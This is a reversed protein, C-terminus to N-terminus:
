RPPDQELKHLIAPIQADPYRRRFEALSARAEDLRGAHALEAIRQLWAERAAPSDMTAPPLDDELGERESLPRAASGGTARNLQAPPLATSAPPAPAASRAPTAPAPTPASLAKQAPAVIPAPEAPLARQRTMGDLARHESRPAEIAETEGPFASVTAPTAPRPSPAVVPAPAPPSPAYEPAPPPPPAIAADGPSPAPATRTAEMAAPPQSAPAAPVTAPAPRLVASSDQVPATMPSVTPAPRSVGEAAPARAVPRAAEMQAHRTPAQRLQWALGVALCLSAALAFPMQWRRRHRSNINGANTQAARAAAMINADLEASPESRGRLRPLQAALAREEANLPESPFRTM